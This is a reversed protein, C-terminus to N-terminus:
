DTWCALTNSSSIIVDLMLTSPPYFRFYKKELKENDLFFYGDYFFYSSDNSRKKKLIKGDLKEFKSRNKLNYYKLFFNEEQDPNKFFPVQFVIRPGISDACTITKFSNNKSKVDVFYLLFILKILLISINKTM